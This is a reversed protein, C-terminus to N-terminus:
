AEDEFLMHSGIWGTGVGLAPYDRKRSELRTVGAVAGTRGAVVPEPHAALVSALGPLRTSAM